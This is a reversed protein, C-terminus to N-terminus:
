PMASPCTVAYEGGVVIVRFVVVEAEVDDVKVKVGTVHIFRIARDGPLFQTCIRFFNPNDPYM